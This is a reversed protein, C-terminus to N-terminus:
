IESTASLGVNTHHGRGPQSVTQQKFSSFDEFLEPRRVFSNPKTGSLRADDCSRGCETSHGEQRKAKQECHLVGHCGFAAQGDRLWSREDESGLPLIWERRCSESKGGKSGM